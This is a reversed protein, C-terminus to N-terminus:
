FDHPKFTGNALLLRALRTRKEGQRLDVLGYREYQVRLRSKVSDVSLAVEAAIEENSAPLGSSDDVLPRCLARLVERDRATMPAWTEESARATSDIQETSTRDQFTIRTAGFCMVDKHALRHRKVVRDGNVYSGNQSLEDVLTWDGGLKELLAHARSVQKDWHLVIDQDGRRGVSVREAEPELLLVQQRGDADKWYVFAQGTREAEIRAKLDAADSTPQPAHTSDTM